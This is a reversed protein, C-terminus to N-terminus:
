GQCLVRAGRYGQSNATEFLIKLNMSGGRRQPSYSALFCLSALELSPGTSSLCTLKPSLLALYPIEMWKVVIKLTLQLIHSGLIKYIPFDLRLVWKNREFDILAAKIQGSSKEM